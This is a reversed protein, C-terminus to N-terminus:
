PFATFILTFYSKSKVPLGPEEMRWFYVQYSSKM